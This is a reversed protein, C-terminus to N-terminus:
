ENGCEGCKDIFDVGLPGHTHIDGTSRECIECYCTQCHESKEIAKLMRVLANHQKRLPLLTNPNTKQVACEDILASMETIRIELYEKKTM